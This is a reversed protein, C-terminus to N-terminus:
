HSFQRLLKGAQPATDLVGAADAVQQGNVWLGHLGLADTTLRPAGGPLDFVRKAATRGVTAPDFLLLDAYHGIQLRGRQNIRYIDAPRGTLHHVAEPLSFAEKERCWHGLLHLGFGADCFFTLHAGADSLAISANPDKLARAVYEEDSNMLVAIFLTQLEESCSFDLMWDLPDKHEAAALEAITHGELHANDAKATEVISLKHWENNFLRVAAPQSLEAKVAQRFDARNLLDKLAKGSVQMAPKWADLGEFPYASQLTFENTLPCCSVQGYLERGRSQAAAIDNLNDFIAEPLVPNHLLAAVMVPRGSVVALQELFAVSTDAGKTLMFVGSNDEGMAKLLAILEDEAALRSPMPIGGYGNHQPATSTAFGVAGARMAARVITAMQDIEDATAVRKTAAAGMVWTRLSSHGIFAGVNLTSGRQELWDMYDSFTEFQWDIGNRLVDISMGEVQTLNRMTLDRDQPHCPAITFGCNGILVTSVGLSSSPNLAPDWTIQADYHTHSDIIGPMLALGDADIEQKATGLSENDGNYAIATIRQENVALSGHQAASGSGDVILANKIILENM